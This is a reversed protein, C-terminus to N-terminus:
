VHSRVEGGYKPIRIKVITGKGSESSIALGYHPGYKLILRRNVNILGIGERIHLEGSEQLLNNKVNSLRSKISELKKSDIGRGNDEFVFIVERDEETGTIHIFTSEKKGECGHIVANEVIPQFILAPVHMSYLSRDIEISYKLRDGYRSSQIELYNNLLEAEVKISTEKEFGALTRLIKSLANITSVAKDYKRTQILMSITNLTNYIFHPRIQRYLANIQAEKQLLRAEYIEKVLATNEKLISDIKMIMKNFSTGLYGIEDHENVTFRVSFDGSEVRKMLAVVTQLPSLLKRILIILVVIAFMSCVVAFLIAMNRTNYANKNLEDYSNVSFVVWNSLAINKTNVLWRKSESEYAFYAESRAVVEDYLDSIDVKVQNRYIHNPYILNKNKDYIFLGGENGMDVKSCIEEIGSYDADVKIVGLIKGTKRMSRLQRVVSFVKFNPNKDIEDTHVPVFIADQTQLAKNYWDYKEFNTVGAYSGQTRTSSYVNDAIIHVRIIDKRPITMMEKLFDEIIRTKELEHIESKKIDEELMKMVDYNYYIAQSLRFLDEIYANVSFAVQDIIQQNLDASHKNFDKTYQIYSLFSVLLISSM